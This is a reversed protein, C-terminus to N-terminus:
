RWFYKCLNVHNNLYSLFRGRDEYGQIKNCLILTLYHYCFVFCFRKRLKAIYHM